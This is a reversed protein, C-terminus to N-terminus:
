QKIRLRFDKGNFQLIKGMEAFRSAIRPESENIENITYNSTIITPLMERYRSDIIYYFNERKADTMKEAGLDDFCICDYTTKRAYTELLRLKGDDAMAANNLRIFMEVIPIFLCNAPKYKWMENQLLRECHEKYGQPTDKNELVEKLRFKESDAEFENRLKMPFNRLLAIAIHTKGTGPNGTLIMSDRGDWKKCIEIQKENDKDPILNMFGCKEHRTPLGVINNSLRL